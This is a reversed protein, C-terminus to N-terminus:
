VDKSSLGEHEQFNDDLFLRAPPPPRPLSPFPHHAPPCWSLICCSLPCLSPSPCPGPSSLSLHCSSLSSIAQSVSFCSGPVVAATSKRWGPTGHVCAASCPDCARQKFLTHLRPRPAMSSSQLPTGAKAEVGLRCELGEPRSVDKQLVFKEM